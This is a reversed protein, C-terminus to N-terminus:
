RDEVQIQDRSGGWNWLERANTKGSLSKVCHETEGTAIWAVLDVFRIAILTKPGAGSIQARGLRQSVTDDPHGGLITSLMQDFGMALNMLYQAVLARM